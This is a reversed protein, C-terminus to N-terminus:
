LKKRARKRSKSKNHRTVEEISQYQRQSFLDLFSGSSNLVVASRILNKLSIEAKNEFRKISGLSVGSKRALEEQTINLELRRERFNKMIIRAIDPPNFPTLDFEKNSLINAM